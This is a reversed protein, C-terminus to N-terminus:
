VGSGRGRTHTEREKERQEWHLAGRVQYRFIGTDAKLAREEVWNGVLATDIEKKNYGSFPHDDGGM